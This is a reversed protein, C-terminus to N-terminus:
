ENSNQMKEIQKQRENIEKQLRDISKNKIDQSKKSFDGSLDSLSKKIKKPNEKLASYKKHADKLLESNGTKYAEAMRKKQEAKKRCTDALDLYHQKKASNESKESKAENRKAANLYNNAYREYKAAKCSNKCSKQYNGANLTLAFVLLLGSLIIIKKM